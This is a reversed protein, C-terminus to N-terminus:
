GDQEWEGTDPRGPRAAEREPGEDQGWLGEPCPEEGREMQTLIDPKSIAYDTYLVSLSLSPDPHAGAAWTVVSICLGWLLLLWLLSVSQLLGIQPCIGRHWQLAEGLSVLMQYNGRMVHKYLEKQWEDLKSWELESFYVAVDDFTVPM